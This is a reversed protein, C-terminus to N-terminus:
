KGSKKRNCKICLMQCNEEISKGGKYWPDIHDAEMQSFEFKKECYNCKSNQKAFTRQKMVDTFARINLHKEDRTLIYPYIGKLKTITDDFALLSNLEDDIKNADLSENKYKNYLTGWDVGKILKSNKSKFNKEVWKIINQFYEWLNDANPKDMNQGMYEEIKNSSIWKITTELYDQRIPTGSLYDKGIHYAPCSNKSFWKKAASVWSGHYVANRLEQETLEKGAINITKFWELKESDDGTCLYVSLPYQLIKLKQDEQLNHFYIKNFSFIKHIYQCISITRQQGDIIEYTGDKRVAWYMVNLPFGKTVTDIVANREKDEYVFERQFPPRIDLKGNYGVVGGEGNDSYGESLDQISINQLEIKV